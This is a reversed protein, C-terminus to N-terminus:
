AFRKTSLTYNQVSQAVSRITDYNLTPGHLMLALKEEDSKTAFHESIILSISDFLQQRLQTYLPCHLLYHRVNELKSGCQCHPSDVKQIKFAHANLKSMGVRLRTLLRNGIKSGLSYYLPPKDPNSKQTVQKKFSKTSTTSRTENSLHNWLRTTAPIYSNHYKTTHNTIETLTTANRLSRNISNLRKAPLVARIYNPINQNNVLAHYLSLKHQKRRESLSSWGLEVKLKESSTRFLTGTIIRAARNQLRELRIADYSTILGDYIVDPGTHCVPTVPTDLAHETNM